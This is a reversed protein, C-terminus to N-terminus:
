QKVMMRRETNTASQLSLIYQGAPLSEVPLAIRNNGEHITWNGLLRGDLTSLVCNVQEDLMKDFSVEVRTTAPNPYVSLRNNAWESTSVLTKTTFSFIASAKEGCPSPVSVRWYYTTGYQLGFGTTLVTTSTTNVTKFINDDFNTGAQSSLELKYSNAGNLAAWKLAITLNLDIAGDVPTTLDAAGSPKVIVRVLAEGTHVGDSVSCQLPYNGASLNNITVYVPEGAVPNMTSTSFTAGAPLGDIQISGLTGFDNGPTLRFVTQEEECMVVFPYNTRLQFDAPQDIPSFVWFGTNLDSILVLGSPLNPNVGWAGAFGAQNQGPYTDFYAVRVPAEPNSIDYVQLGDYYYSVFVLNERVIANHPIQSVASNANMTAIVSMDQLDGMSVVKVPSGHTEDCLIYNRGDDAMWGSHNYGAGPYSTMTGLIEPHTVDSFDVVYLGDNGCNM